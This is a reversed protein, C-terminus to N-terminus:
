FTHGGHIQYKHDIRRSADTTSVELQHLPDCQLEDSVKGDAVGISPNGDYLIRRPRSQNESQLLRLSAAEPLEPAGQSSLHFIPFARGSSSHGEIHCVIQELRRFIPQEVSFLDSM